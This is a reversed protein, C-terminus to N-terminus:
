VWLDLNCRTNCNEWGRQRCIKQSILFTLIDGKTLFFHLLYSWGCGTVWSGHLTQSPFELFELDNIQAIQMGALLAPLLPIVRGDLSSPKWFQTKWCHDMGHLLIELHTRTLSCMETATGLSSLSEFIKSDNLTWTEM